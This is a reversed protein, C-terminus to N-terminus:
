VGEEDYPLLGVPLEGCSQRHEYNIRDSQAECTACRTDGCGSPCPVIEHMGSM